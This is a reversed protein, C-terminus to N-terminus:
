QQVDDMILSLQSVGSKEERRKITISHLEQIVLTWFELDPASLLKNTGYDRNLLSWACLSLEYLFVCMRLPPPHGRKM